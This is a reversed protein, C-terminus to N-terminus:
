AHHTEPSAFPLDIIFEAGGDPLNHARITGNMERVIEASIALGLGLGSGTEKTTFFPKFLRPM